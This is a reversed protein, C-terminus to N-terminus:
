ATGKAAFVEAYVAEFIHEDVVDALHAAICSIMNDPDGPPFTPEAGALYRRTAESIPCAKFKM